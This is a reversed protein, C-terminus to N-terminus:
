VHARGIKLLVTELLLLFAVLMFKLHNDFVWEKVLGCRARHSNLGGKKVWEAHLNQM